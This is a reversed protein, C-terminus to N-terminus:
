RYGGGLIELFNGFEGVLLSNSVIKERKNAAAGARSGEKCSAAGPAM